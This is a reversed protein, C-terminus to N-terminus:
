AVEPATAEARRGGAPEAGNVTVYSEADFGRTLRRFRWTFSPWLTSNRGAADIYWSACGGATWVTGEMREQVRANYRRQAEPRPEITSLREREMTRLADLVYAVQSEIMYVISNHGLGTNPGLLLFFNPFGAVTTGRHAQPSGRWVDDLLKGDRGRVMRVAPMDTVHFGTGFILTDIEREAGDATVISRPRVETIRDTVVEVNPAGLAPLYDNSILIRKCGLTYSPTVRRRLDPDPVQHRLHARAALELPKILRRDVALGLVLAEHALYLAGRALRQLAPFRRYLRRRRGGIPRNPHPLIWPPTRQFVHLRGVHPQIRPVFQISSAGTGIVAVRKGALDHGHDWAASHFATGEFSDIGPIDPLSPDSLAGTASVVVDATLPGASTHISWRRRDEDWAAERVEHRLRLHPELGAEAACRRLYRQIEPQRSYVHSWDPNPAFSFSYLHSPVDCGCGPYTNDRWTGGVEGARELVVFDDMGEQKLRIAMALGSFGSGVIAVRAHPPPVAGNGGAAASVDQATGAAEEVRAPAM